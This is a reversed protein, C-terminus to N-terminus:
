GIPINALVAGEVKVCLMELKHGDVDELSVDLVLGDRSVTVAAGDVFLTGGVTPVDTRRDGHCTDNPFSRKTKREM